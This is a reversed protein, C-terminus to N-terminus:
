ESVMFLSADETAVNRDKSIKGTQCSPNPPAASFFFSHAQFEVSIGCLSDVGFSISGLLINIFRPSRPPIKNIFYMLDM